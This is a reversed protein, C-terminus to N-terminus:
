FYANILKTTISNIKLATQDILQLRYGSVQTWDDLHVFYDYYIRDVQNIDNLNKVVFVNEMCDGLWEMYEYKSKWNDEIIDHKQNNNNIILMNEREKSEFTSANGDDSAFLQEIDDTIDIRM